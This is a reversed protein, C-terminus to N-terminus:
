LQSEPIPEHYGNRKESLNPESDNTHATVITIDIDTVDETDVEPATYFKSSLLFMSASFMKVTIWWVFLRWSMEFRDYFWCSGQSGCLDQWLACASDIVVGTLVPGPITGSIYVFYTLNCLDPISVIFYWVQGLM